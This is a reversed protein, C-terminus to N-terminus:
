KSKTKVRQAPTQVSKNSFSVMGNQWIVMNELYFYPYGESDTKIENCIEKISAINALNDYYPNHFENILIKRIRYLAKKKMKENTQNIINM